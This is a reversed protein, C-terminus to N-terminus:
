FAGIGQAHAALRRDALAHYERPRKGSNTKTKM